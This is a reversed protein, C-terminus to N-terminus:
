LNEGPAVAKWQTEDALRSCECRSGCHLWGRSGHCRHGTLPPFKALYIVDCTVCVRYCLIEFGNDCMLVPALWLHHTFPLPAFRWIHGLTLCCLLPPHDAGASSPDPDAAGGPGLAGKWRVKIHKGKKGIVVALEVEWDVAQLTPLPCTLQLPPLTPRWKYSSPHLPHSKCVWLSQATALLEM